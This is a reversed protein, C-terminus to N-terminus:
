SRGTHVQRISTVRRLPPSEIHREELSDPAALVAYTQRRRKAFVCYLHKGGLLTLGTVVTKQYQNWQNSPNSSRPSNWPSAMDITDIGLSLGRIQRVGHADHTVRRAHHGRARGQHWIQRGFCIWFGDQLRHSKIVEKLISLLQLRYYKYQISRIQALFQMRAAHLAIQGTRM